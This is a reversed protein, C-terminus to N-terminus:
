QQVIRHGKLEDIWAGDVCGKAKVAV